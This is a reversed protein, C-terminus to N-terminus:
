ESQYWKPAAPHSSRGVHQLILSMLLGTEYFEESGALGETLYVVARDGWTLMSPKRMGVHNVWWWRPSQVCFFFRVSSKSTGDGLLLLRPRHDNNPPPTPFQIPCGILRSRTKVLTKYRRCLSISWPFQLMAPFFFM